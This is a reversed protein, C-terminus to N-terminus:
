SAPSVSADEPLPTFGVAAITYEDDVANPIPDVDIRNPFGWDPDWAIDFAQDPPLGAAIAFLEPVTKPLSAVEAPDVPQRDKTVETVVGARVTIRYTPVSPCFCTRTVSLQYSAVNKANWIRQQDGILRLQQEQPTLSGIPLASCGAAVLTLLLVLRSAGQRPRFM